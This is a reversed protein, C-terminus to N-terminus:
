DHDLILRSVLHLHAHDCDTPLPRSVNRNLARSPRDRGSSHRPVASSDGVEWWRGTIIGVSRYEEPADLGPPRQLGTADHVDELQRGIEQVGGRQGRAAPRGQGDVVQLPQGAQGAHRALLADHTRLLVSSSVPTGTNKVLNVTGSPSPPSTRLVPKM